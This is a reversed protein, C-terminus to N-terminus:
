QLANLKRQEQQRKFKARLYDESDILRESRFEDYYIIFFLGILAYLFVCNDM